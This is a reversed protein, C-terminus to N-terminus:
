VVINETLYKKGEFFFLLLSDHRLLYKDLSFEYKGKKKAEFAWQYTLAQLMFTDKLNRVDSLINKQRKTDSIGAIGIYKFKLLPTKPAVISDKKQVLLTDKHLKPLSDTALFLSDESLWQTKPLSFSLSDNQAQLSLSFYLFLFCLIIKM